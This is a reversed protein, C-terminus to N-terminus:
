GPHDTGDAVPPDFWIRLVSSYANSTGQSAPPEPRVDGTWVAVARFDYGDQWGRDFELSVTEGATLSRYGTARVHSFHAWCGGPTDASDIVGWGEDNHWERVIGTTTM